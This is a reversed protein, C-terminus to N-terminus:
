SAVGEGEAIGLAEQCARLGVRHRLLLSEFTRTHNKLQQRHYALLDRLREAELRANHKRVSDKWAMEELNAKNNQRARRDIFASLEAEVKEISTVEDIM